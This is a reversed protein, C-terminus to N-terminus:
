HDAGCDVPATVPYLTEIVATNAHCFVQWGGPGLDAAGFVGGAKGERCCATAARVGIALQDLGDHSHPFGGIPKEACSWPAVGRFKVLDEHLVRPSDGQFPGQYCVRGQRELQAYRPAFHLGGIKPGSWNNGCFVHTFGERWTAAATEASAGRRRLAEDHQQLFSAVRESPVEVNSADPCLALLAEDEATAVPPTTFLPVHTCPGCPSSAHRCSALLLLALVWKM